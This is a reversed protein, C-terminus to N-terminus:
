VPMCPGDLNEALLTGCGPTEYLDVRSLAPLKPRAQAFIWAALSGTDGDRLGDLDALPQHDLAKFIPTFVQKVDGFDITWGMAADLPAKLHLKLSYTHGHIAGRLGGQPAYRLTTASDFSFEKWIRYDRGDFNAGCSATEYVTVWSLEPLQAKLRRWIWAAIVESTPNELGAIENLCRYNLEVHLPAWLADLHDYDISIPPAGLDQNAHVIVEFGHGHM